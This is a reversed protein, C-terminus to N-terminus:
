SRFNNSLEIELRLRAIIAAVEGDYPNLNILKEYAELASVKDSLAISSEAVIMLMDTNRPHGRLVFKAAERAEEYNKLEFQLHAITLVISLDNPDIRRLREYVVLAVDFKQQMAIANALRKLVDKDERDSSEVLDKYIIEAKRYNSEAEYTQGLLATLAYHTKKLALGEIVKARAEAIMGQALRSQAHKVIEEIHNKIELWKADNLDRNQSESLQKEIEHFTSAVPVIEEVIDVSETITETIAITGDNTTVSQTYEEHIHLIPAVEGIEKSASTDKNIDEPINSIISPSKKISEPDLGKVILQKQREREAIERLDNMIPAVKNAGRYLAHLLLYLASFVVLLFDYRLWSTSFLFDM